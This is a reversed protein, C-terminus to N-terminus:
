KIACFAARIDRRAEGYEQEIFQMVAGRTWLAFEMKLQEPRKDCITRRIAEEQDAHLRRGDGPTRGRPSPKLAAAGGEEYLDIALRVAPYSLGTLEVIAMVGYGKRHLRVVQKRREHLQELKQYRADEKKM